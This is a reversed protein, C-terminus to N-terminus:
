IFYGAWHEVLVGRGTCAPMCDYPKHKVLQEALNQYILKENREVIAKDRSNIHDVYLLLLDYYAFM